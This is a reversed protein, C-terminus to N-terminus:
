TQKLQTKHEDSLYIKPSNDQCTNEEEIILIKADESLIQTHYVGKLIRYVKNPEMIVREFSHIKNEIVEALILTCHGQLLVFAEDTNEHAEVYNIFDIKLEDIYNLIAIRWSQHHFLKHYGIEDAQYIDCFKM